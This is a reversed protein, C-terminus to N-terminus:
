SDQTDLMKEVAEFVQDVSISEMCIHRSMKCKPKDCPVCQGTGCIQIEDEYGTQTWKPNNPGFLTIVKKRLAIAIHRGGTDNTIVVDAKSFLGKLEGLGLNLDGLNYLEHSARGCIKAAIRRELKNPAVSVVVNADYKEIIRDALVAYRGSAWLKSPGFAGGPVLIALPKSSSMVPALKNSVSAVQENSVELSVSRDSADCGIKKCLKLYYDVMSRPKFKGVGKMAPMIKDTLFMGRWDRDYGIRQGIGALYVTMASGFSNKLLIVKDFKHQKILGALKFPNKKLNIFGDCYACPELVDRVTKTALCTIGADSFHERISRLAATALIADGMPSPLWVLIKEQRNGM